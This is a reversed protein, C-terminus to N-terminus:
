LALHFLEARTFDCGGLGLALSTRWFDGQIAKAMDTLMSRVACGLPRSELMWAAYLGERQVRARLCIALLGLTILEALAECVDLPGPISSWTGGM